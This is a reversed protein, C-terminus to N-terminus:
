CRWMSTVENLSVFDKRRSGNQECANIIKKRKKWITQIMSNIFDFEWVHHSGEKEM